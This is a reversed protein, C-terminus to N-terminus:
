PQYYPSPNNEVGESLRLLGASQFSFIEDFDDKLSGRKPGNESM